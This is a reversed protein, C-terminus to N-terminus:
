EVILKVGQVEKVTVQEGVPIVRDNASRASWHLGGVKVEGQEDINRIEETVICVKGIIADVNTKETRSALFKRCLPRTAILLALGIVLFLVIQLWPEVETLSLIMSVIAAPLFWITVLDSTLAEMVVTAVMVAVWLYLM